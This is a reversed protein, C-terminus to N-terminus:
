PSPPGAKEVSIGDGVAVAGLYAEPVEFNILLTARDDLTTVATSLDVRDGPDLDSFGM